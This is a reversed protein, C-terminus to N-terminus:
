IQMLVTRLKTENYENMTRGGDMWARLRDVTVDMQKAIYEETTWGKNIFYVAAEHPENDRLIEKKLSM